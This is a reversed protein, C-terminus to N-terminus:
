VRFGRRCERRMVFVRSNKDIAELLFIFVGAKLSIPAYMALTREGVEVKIEGDQGGKKKSLGLRNLIEINTM